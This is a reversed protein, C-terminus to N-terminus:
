AAIVANPRLAELPPCLFPRCLPVERLSRRQHVRCHPIANIFAAIPFACIFEVSVILVPRCPSGFSPSPELAAISSKWNKCCTYDLVFSSLPQSSPSKNLTHIRSTIGLMSADRVVVLMRNRLRIMMRVVVVDKREQGVGGCGGCREGVRHLWGVFFLHQRPPGHSISQQQRVFLPSSLCHVLLFSPTTPCKGVQMGPAHFECFFLKLFAGRVCALVGEKGMCAVAATEEEERGEGEDGGQRWKTSRM